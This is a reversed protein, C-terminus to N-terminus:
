SLLIKDQDLIQDQLLSSLRDDSFIDIRSNIIKGSLIEATSAALM